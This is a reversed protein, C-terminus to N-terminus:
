RVESEQKTTDTEVIKSIYYNILKTSDEEFLETDEKIISKLEKRAEKLTPLEKSLECGDNCCVIYYTRRAM